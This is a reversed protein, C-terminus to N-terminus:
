KTINTLGHECELILSITQVCSLKSILVTYSDLRYSDIHRSYVSGFVRYVLIVVKLIKVWIAKCLM